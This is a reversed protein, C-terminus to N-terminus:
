RMISFWSAKPLVSPAYNLFQGDKTPGRNGFGANCGRFEAFTKSFGSDNVWKKPKFWSNLSSVGPSSLAFSSVCNTRKNDLIDAIASANVAGKIQKPTQNFSNTLTKWKLLYKTYPSNNGLSLNEEIAMKPWYSSSKKMLNHAYLLVKEAVTCWVPKLGADINTCVNTSNRPLQLIFKGVLTQIREVEHITAQTLPMIESGYLISPLACRTWLTYALDSRDPGSKVLSLVSHLYNNAKQKVQENYDKFLGYPSSSLILGLYKFSCVQELSLSGPDGSNQFRIKETACDYRMVKSKKASIELHHTKCFHRTINMLKELAQPSRGILVIDDPFFITAINHSSLDIGLGSKNLEQGLNSVFLSFLIPSLNCGPFFSFNVVSLDYWSLQRYLGQKVGNTLWLEDTYHNNVFFKLSDNRYM